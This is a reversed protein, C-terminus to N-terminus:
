SPRNLHAAAVAVRLNSRAVTVQVISRVRQLWPPAARHAVQGPPQPGAGRAAHVRSLTPCPLVPPTSQSLRHSCPPTPEELTPLNLTHMPGRVKAKNVSDYASLFAEGEQRLSEKEPQLEEWWGDMLDKKITRAPMMRSSFKPVVRPPKEQSISKKVMSSELNAVLDNSDHGTADSSAVLRTQGRNLHQYLVFGTLCHAAVLCLIGSVALLFRKRHRVVNRQPTHSDLADSSISVSGYACGQASEM